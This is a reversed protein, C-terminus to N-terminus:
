VNEKPPGGYVLPAARCFTQSGNIYLLYNSNVSIAFKIIINILYFKSEGVTFVM